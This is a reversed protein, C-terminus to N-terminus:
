FKWFYYYNFWQYPYRSVKDELWAIYDNMVSQLQKKREKGLANPYVKPKTAMFHYHYKGEKVATVFSVPKNYKIALQFPGLPFEAERGM